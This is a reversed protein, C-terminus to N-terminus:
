QIVFIKLMLYLLVISETAAYINKLWFIQNYFFDVFYNEHQTATLSKTNVIWSILHASRLFPHIYICSAALTTDLTDTEWMERLVSIVRCQRSSPGARPPSVSVSAVCVTGSKYQWQLPTPITEKNEGSYAVCCEQLWTERYIKRCNGNDLHQVSCPVTRAM